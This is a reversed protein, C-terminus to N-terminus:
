IAIPGPLRRKSPKVFVSVPLKRAWSRRGAADLVLNRDRVGLKKLIHHVHNKVTHESLCLRAAIEKNTLELSLLDLVKRERLTLMPTSPAGLHIKQALRSLHSFLAYTISPACAFEGNQVSQMVATLEQLCAGQPIYGSAGVEALSVVNKESEVVGLLIVKVEPNVATVTRVLILTASVDSGLDILIMPFRALVAADRTKVAVLSYGSEQTLALALSQARYLSDSLVAVLIAEAPM